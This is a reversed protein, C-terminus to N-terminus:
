RTEEALLWDLFPQEILSFFRQRAHSKRDLEYRGSVSCVRNIFHRARRADIEADYASLNIQQLFDWFHPDKALIGANRSPMGGALSDKLRLRRAQTSRVRPQGLPVLYLLRHTHSLASSVISQTRTPQTHEHIIRPASNEAAQESGTKEHDRDQTPQTMKIGGDHLPEGSSHMWADSIREESISLM